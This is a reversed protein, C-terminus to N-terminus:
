FRNSEATKGKAEEKTLSSVPCTECVPSNQLNLCGTDTFHMSSRRVRLSDLYTNSSSTTEHKLQVRDLRCYKTMELLVCLKKEGKIKGVRMTSGVSLEPEIKSMRKIKM